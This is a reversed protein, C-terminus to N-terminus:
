FMRRVSNLMVQKKSATLILLCNQYIDVEKGQRQFQAVIAINFHPIGHVSETRRLEACLKRGQGIGTNVQIAGGGGKLWLRHNLGRLLEVAQAGPVHM